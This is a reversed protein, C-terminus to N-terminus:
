ERGPGWAVRGKACLDLAQHRKVGPHQGGVLDDQAHVLLGAQLRARPPVRGQGRSRALRHADLVRVPPGPREVQERGEVGARALNFRGGGRALALHFKDGQKILKLAFQGRWSSFNRTRPAAGARPFGGRKSATAAQAWRRNAKGGGKKRGAKGSSGAEFGTQIALPTQLPRM